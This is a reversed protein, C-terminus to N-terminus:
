GLKFQGAPVEDIHSSFVRSGSNDFRDSITSVQQRSRLFPCLTTSTEDPAIPIPMRLNSMSFLGLCRAVTCTHFFVVFIPKQVKKRSFYSLSVIRFSFQIATEVTKKPVLLPQDTGGLLVTPHETWAASAASQGSEALVFRCQRRINKGM